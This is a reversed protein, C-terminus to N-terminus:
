FPVTASERLEGVASENAKLLSTFLLVPAASFYLVCITIPRGSNVMPVYSSSLFLKGINTSSCTGYLLSRSM